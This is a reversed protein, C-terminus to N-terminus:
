SIPAFYLPQSPPKALTAAKRMLVSLSITTFDEDLPRVTYWVGAFGAAVADFRGPAPSFRGRDGVGRQGVGPEIGAIFGVAGVQCVVFANGANGLMGSM